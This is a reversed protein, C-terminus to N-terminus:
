ASAQRREEASDEPPPEGLIEEDTLEFLPASFLSDDIFGRRAKELIEEVSPLQRDQRAM